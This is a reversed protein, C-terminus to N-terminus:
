QEGKSKSGNKTASCASAPVTRIKGNPLRIEYYEQGLAKGRSIFVVLEGNYYTTGIEKRETSKSGM